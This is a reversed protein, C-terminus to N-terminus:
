VPAFEEYYGLSQQLPGDDIQLLFSPTSSTNRVRVSAHTPVAVVDGKEWRFVNGDVVAIGDGEMGLLVASVSRRRPVHDAGPKLMMVSFCLTKLAPGGTCPNVYMLHVIPADVHAAARVLAARTEMWRYRLLPYPEPSSTPGRFPVLGGRAYLLDEDYSKGESAARPNGEILYSAELPIAVPHDLIDM